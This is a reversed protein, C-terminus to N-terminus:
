IGLLPLSPFDCPQYVCTFFGSQRFCLFKFQWKNRIFSLFLYEKNVWYGHLFLIRDDANRNLQSVPFRDSVNSYSFGESRHRRGILCKNTSFKILFKFICPLAVNKQINFFQCQVLLSIFYSHIIIAFCSM